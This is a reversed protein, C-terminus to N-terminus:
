VRSSMEISQNSLGGVGRDDWVIRVDCIYDANCTVVVCTSTDTATGINAKVSTLWQRLSNSALTTGSIGGSSCSLALNYNGGKAADRDVRMVDMIYQSLIVAQTRQFSSNGGKMARVQLAAMGLFGFSLILVAILVEILTAGAMKKQSFVYKQANHLKM